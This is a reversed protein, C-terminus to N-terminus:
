SKAFETALLNLDTSRNVALLIYAIEEETSKLRDFEVGLAHIVAERYDKIGPAFQEIFSSILYRVEEEAEAVKVIGRIVLPRVNDEVLIGNRVINNRM